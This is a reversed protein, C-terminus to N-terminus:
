LRQARIRQDLVKAFEDRLREGQAYRSFDREFRARGNSGLELRLDEDEMLGTIADAIAAPDGRRCVAVERTLVGTVAATRGTLIPRGCALGEFVKHPIVRDAKDSTGFVGLCLAAGALERVLDAQPLFDVFEVNSVSVSDALRLVRDRDQGSGILRFRYGREKLLAAARVIWEIGQLPVFTGYFVILDDDVEVDVIPHFVSEDAGLYVIGFQDLPIGALDAQFRAHAPCDSIIRDALRMSLRDIYRALRAGISETSALARDSIATDFLSIFVDFVIPRRKILAVLKVVPVDFWGPYSVLYLHPKPQLMLRVLLVPYAVLMRLIVRLRGETFASVRDKPWLDIRVERYDIKAAELYERLRKNREFSPEFTGAWCVRM